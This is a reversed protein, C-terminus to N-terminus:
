AFVQVLRKLKRKGPAYHEDESILPVSHTAEGALPLEGSSARPKVLNPRTAQISGTIGTAESAAMHFKRTKPLTVEFPSAQLSLHRQPHVIPFIWSLIKLILQSTM